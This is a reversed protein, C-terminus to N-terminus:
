KEKEKRWPYDLAASHFLFPQRTHRYRTGVVQHRSGEVYSIMVPTDCVFVYVYWDRINVSLPPNIPIFLTGKSVISCTVTQHMLVPSMFKTTTLDKNQIKQEMAKGDGRCWFRDEVNEVCVRVRELVQAFMGSGLRPQYEGGGEKIKAGHNIWCPHDEGGLRGYFGLYRSSLLLTEDGRQQRQSRYQLM